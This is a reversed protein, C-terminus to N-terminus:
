IRGDQDTQHSLWQDLIDRRYLIRRRIRTRPIDLKDLTTRCIKLYAAAEARTLIDAGAPPQITSM